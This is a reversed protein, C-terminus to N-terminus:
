KSVKTRCIEKKVEEAGEKKQKRGGREDQQILKKITQTNETNKGTETKNTSEEHTYRENNERRIRNRKTSHYIYPYLGVEGHEIM